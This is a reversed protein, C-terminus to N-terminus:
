KTEKTNPCEMLLRVFVETIRPEIEEWTFMEAKTVQFRYASLFFELVGPIKNLEEGLLAAMPSLESLHPWNRQWWEIPKDTLSQRFHWTKTRDSYGPKVTIQTTM